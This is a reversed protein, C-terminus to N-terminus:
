TAPTKEPEVPLSFNFITGPAATEIWVQGEHAEVFGKCIALGLGTGGARQTLSTDVRYFRDFVKQHLSEPIGSGFDRVALVVHDEKQYTYVEISSEEAAYKLANELYNRIVTSIRSLDMWVLPLNSALHTQIRGNLPPHFSDVVEQCLDNLSYLEGNVDLIGAEIRSMDLLNQVLKALRDTEESITTLFERQAAAEWQVDDALLTSAYGKITALPTRLEHSVTSLLTSKMRDLEKDPTIDQWLQGRGLLDGRADTVNFLHIRLYRCNGNSLLQELDLTQLGTGAIAAEYESAALEPEKALELLRAFMEAANMQGAQSRPIQLWRCAQQNCFMVKGALSELVLGDNLSEVIAELRRTQEQLQEDTRAFLAANELAVSAHNGFSSALELESYSYRYPESKYLLLVAPPAHQTQLPIALVSRFGEKEARRRFNSFALDTETNAVQIPAQNRLARMSPSSPESPAIRLSQTYENSLGRSARIRFMEARRDLVVVASRPVDFLAEVQNLINNIVQGADLSAAVVRSTELLTSLQVFRKEVDEEMDMLGRALNGIQDPRDVLQNLARSEDPNPQGRWRIIESFTELRELPAIVLRSLLFWSFVGGLLYTGIAAIMIQYILTSTAFAYRSPRQLILWGGDGLPAAAHLWERDIPDATIFVASQNEPLQRIVRRLWSNWENSNPVSYLDDPDPEYAYREVIQNDQDILLVLAYNNVGSIELWEQLDDIFQSFDVHPSGKQAIGQTLAFHTALIDERLRRQTYSVFIFAIILIAAAFFLYLRFLRVRLDEKELPAPSTTQDELASFRPTM